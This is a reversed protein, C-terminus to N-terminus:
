STKSSRPRKKIEEDDPVLQIRKAFQCRNTLDAIVTWGGDQVPKSNDLVARDAMDKGTPLRDKDDLVARKQGIRQDPTLDILTLNM